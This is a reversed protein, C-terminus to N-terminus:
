DKKFFANIDKRYREVSEDTLPELNIKKGNKLHIDFTGGNDFIYLVEDINIVYDILWPENHNM